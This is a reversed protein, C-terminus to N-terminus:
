VEFERAIIEAEFLRNTATFYKSAPVALRKCWHRFKDREKRMAALQEAHTKAQDRLEQRLSAISQANTNLPTPRRGNAMNYKIVDVLYVRRDIVVTERGKKIRRRIAKGTARWRLQEGDLYFLANAETKTLQNM